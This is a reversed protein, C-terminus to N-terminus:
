DKKTSLLTNIGINYQHQSIWIYLCIGQRAAEEDGLLTKNMARSTLEKLQHQKM